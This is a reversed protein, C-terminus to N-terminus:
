AAPPTVKVTKSMHDPMVYHVSAMNPDTRVAVNNQVAVTHESGDTDTFTASSVGDPLLLAVTPATNKGGMAFEIGESSATEPRGCAQATMGGVQNVSVCYETGERSVYVLNEIGQSNDVEALIAGAQEAAATRAHTSHPPHTFVSFHTKQLSHHHISGRHGGFALAATALLAGVALVAVASLILRLRRGSQYSRYLV